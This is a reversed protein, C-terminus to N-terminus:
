HDKVLPSFMINGNNENDDEETEDGEEHEEMEPWTWPQRLLSIDPSEPGVVLVALDQPTLAMRAYEAEEMFKRITRRVERQTFSPMEEEESWVYPTLALGVNRTSLPGLRMDAGHLILSPYARGEDTWGPYGLLNEVKLPLTHMVLTARGVDKELQISVRLSFDPEGWEEVEEETFVETGTKKKYITVGLNKASQWNSTWGGPYFVYEVLLISGGIHAGKPANLFLKKAPVRWHHKGSSLSVLWKVHEVGGTPGIRLTLTGMPNTGAAVDESM